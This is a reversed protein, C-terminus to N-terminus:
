SGHATQVTPSRCISNNTANIFKIANLCRKNFSTYSYFCQITRVLCYISFFQDGGEQSTGSILPICLKGISLTRGDHFHFLNTM